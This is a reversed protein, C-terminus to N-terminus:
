PKDHRCSFMEQDDWNDDGHQCSIQKQLWERYPSLQLGWGYTSNSGTALGILEDGNWTDYIASGSMGHDIVDSLLMGHYTFTSNLPQASASLQKVTSSYASSVIASSDGGHMADWSYGVASVLQQIRAEGVKCFVKSKPWSIAMPTGLSLVALDAQPHLVIKGIGNSMVTNYPPRGSKIGLTIREPELEYKEVVHRCTLYHFSSRFRVATGLFDGDDDFQGDRKDATVFLTAAYPQFRDPRAPREKM